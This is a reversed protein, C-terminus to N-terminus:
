YSNEACGVCARVCDAQDGEEATGEKTGTPPHCRRRDPQTRRPAFEDVTARSVTKWGLINYSLRSIYENRRTKESTNKM